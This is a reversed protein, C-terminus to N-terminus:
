TKIYLNKNIITWKKNNRVINGSVRVMPCYSKKLSIMLNKKQKHKKTKKNELVFSGRHLVTVLAFTDKHMKTREHLKPEM